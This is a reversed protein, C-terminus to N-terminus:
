GTVFPNSTTQKGETGNRNKMKKNPQRRTTEDGCTLVFCCCCCCCCAFPMEMSDCRVGAGGLAAAASALVLSADVDDVEDDDGDDDNLEYCDNKELAERECDGCSYRRSNRFCRWSPMMTTTTTAAVVPLVNSRNYCEEADVDM